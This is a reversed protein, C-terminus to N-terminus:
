ADAEIPAPEGAALAYAREVFRVAAVGPEDGHEGSAVRAAFDRLVGVYEHELSSKFAQFGDLMDATLREGDETEVMLDKLEGDYAWDLEITVPV